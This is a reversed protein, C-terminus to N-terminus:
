DLLWRARNGYSIGRDEAQSFRSNSLESLTKWQAAEIAHAITVSRLKAFSGLPSLPCLPQRYTPIVVIDELYPFIPSLRGLIGGEVAQPHSPDLYILLCRLTPPILKSLIRIDDEGSARWLTLDLLRPIMPVTGNERTLSPALEMANICISDQKAVTIRRVRRAYERFRQWGALPLGTSLNDRARGVHYRINLHSVLDLLPQMSGLERWSMWQRIPGRDAFAPPV